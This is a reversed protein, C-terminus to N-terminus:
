YVKGEKVRYIVHDDDYIDLRSGRMLFEAVSEFFDLMVGHWGYSADFGSSAWYILNNNKLHTRDFRFMKQHKTFYLEMYDQVTKPDMKFPYKEECFGVDKSVHNRYCEKMKALVKDEDWMNFKLQCEVSYCAGM